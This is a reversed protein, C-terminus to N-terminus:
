SPPGPTSTRHRPQAPARTPRPPAPSPRPRTGHAAAASSRRSTRPSRTRTLEPVLHRPKRVRKPVVVVRRRRNRVRVPADPRLVDPQAVVQTPHSQQPLRSYPGGRALLPRPQPLHRLLRAVTEPAKQPSGPPQLGLFRKLTNWKAGKRIHAAPSNPATKSPKPARISAARHPRLLFPVATKAPTAKARRPIYTGALM